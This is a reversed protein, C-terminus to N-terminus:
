YILGCPSPEMQSAAAGLAQLWYFVPSTRGLADIVLDAEVEGNSTRVGTVEPLRGPQGLLGTIRVGGRTLISPERMVKQLLAWEIM